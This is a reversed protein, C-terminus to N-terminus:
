RSERASLYVSRWLSSLVQTGYNSSPYHHNNKYYIRHLLNSQSPLLFIAYACPSHSKKHLTYPFIMDFSLQKLRPLLHKIIREDNPSIGILNRHPESSTGILNWHLYPAPLHCVFPSSFPYPSSFLPSIHSKVFFFIDRAQTHAFFATGKDRFIYNRWYLM